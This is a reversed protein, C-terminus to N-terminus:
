RGLTEERKRPAAQRELSVLRVSSEVQLSAPVWSWCSPLLLCMDQKSRQPQLSSWGMLAMSRLLAQM